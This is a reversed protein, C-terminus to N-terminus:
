RQGSDLDQNGLDLSLCELAIIIKWQLVNKGSVATYFRRYRTCKRIREILHLSGGAAIVRNLSDVFEVSSRINPVRKRYTKDTMFESVFLCARGRMTNNNCASCFVNWLVTYLYTQARSFFFVYYVSRIHPVYKHQEFCIDSLFGHSFERLKPVVRPVPFPCRIM